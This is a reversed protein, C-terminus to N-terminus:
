RTFWIVALVFAGIWLTESLMLFVPRWGVAALSKFSTKMGLASIATVICWRSVEFSAETALPPRVGTSNILVRAAFAILFLPVGPRQGAAASAGGRALVLAIVFVVPLLM